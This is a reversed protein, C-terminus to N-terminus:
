DGEGEKWYIKVPDYTKQEMMIMEFVGGKGCARSGRGSETKVLCM